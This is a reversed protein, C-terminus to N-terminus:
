ANLLALVAKAQEITVDEEFTLFLDGSKFIRYEDYARWSGDMCKASCVVKKLTYTNQEVTATNREVTTM